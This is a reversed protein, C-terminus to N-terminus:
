SPIRPRATCRGTRTATESSVGRWGSACVRVKVSGCSRSRSAPHRGFRDQGPQHPKAGDRGGRVEREDVPDLSPDRGKPSAATSCPIVLARLGIEEHTKPGLTRPADQQRPVRIHDWGFLRGPHLVVRKLEGMPFAPEVPTPRGVHLPEDGGNQCLHGLQPITVCRRQDVGNMQRQRVILLHPAEPGGAQDFVERVCADPGGHGNDALGGLHLQRSGM